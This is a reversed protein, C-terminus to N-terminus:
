EKPKGGGSFRVLLRYGVRAFFITIVIRAVHHLSVFVVSIQLSLAILSMESVGGPAYALVVAKVPEDVFRYLAMGFILALILASSVSFLALFLGKMAQRREIAVFRVGLTTGVILQTLAILFSPPQAATLGALHALGSVFIPGAIIAAPLKLRKFGLYGVVGCVILIGADVLTMDPRNPGGVSVGSASGVLVGESLTFAVPVIIICLLLRAFQLMTLITPDGGAEEGLTVAEILGGPTASFFATERDYHGFRSYIFYSSAHALPVYLFLALVTPWWLPISGVLAPTFAGGIMVGIIPVFFDRLKVPFQLKHGVLRFDSLAVGGVAMAAGLLWPLPLSLQRAVLAGAIGIALTVLLVLPQFDQGFLRLKM